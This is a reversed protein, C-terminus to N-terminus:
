PAIGEYPEVLVPCALRRRLTALNREHPPGVLLVARVELGRREAAEVTLLTHNLTGLGSRAVVVIPAGLRKLFDAQDERENIPVLLGGACEVVWPVAADMRGLCAEALARAEVRVTAAQDISAPLPFHHLPAPARAEGIRARVFDTDSEPGTQVPKLYHAGSRECLLAAVHTKGVGTDTGAVVLIRRRPPPPPSEFPGLKSLAEALADIEADAHDAHCVVRLRSTGEPVTPPRAARVDFGQEQLAGAAAAARRADGLLLPVIPEDGALGLAGRLRRAAAFVRARRWPEAQAVRIAEALAAAVAPPPATTFVFPRAKHLLLEVLTRSGAVFAGAVGLAKGGTVVRALVRGEFPYLGASHADDVLLEADLRAYADIPARDGEMSFTSEFLVFRRGGRFRELKARLDDVDNHEFLVVRARSLRAADVLSAHNLRDCFLLDGPGALASVLALNAQYGSPFLLAAEAGTWRAAEREAEGHPPLNGRLLRAATAGAGYEELACRAASVVRPHRSLALYDNSSFDRGRRPTLARRHGRAGWRELEGALEDELM